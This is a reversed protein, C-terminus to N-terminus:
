TRDVNPFCVIGGVSPGVRAVRSPPTAKKYRRRSFPGLSRSVGLHAKKLCIRRTKKVLLYKKTEIKTRVHPNVIFFSRHRSVTLLHKKEKKEDKKNIVLKM